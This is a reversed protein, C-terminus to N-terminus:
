SSTFYDWGKREGNIIAIITKKLSNVEPLIQFLMPSLQGLRLNFM